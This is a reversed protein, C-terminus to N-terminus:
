RRGSTATASCSRRPASTMATRSSTRRSRTGSRTAFGAPKAIGAALVAERIVRQLASEHFHHRREVALASLFATVETAALTSPHGGCPFLIYRRIWFVYARETRSSLHRTRLAIRVRDLLRPQGPGYAPPLEAVAFAAATALGPM